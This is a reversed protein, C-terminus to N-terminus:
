KKALPTYKYNSKYMLYERRDKEVRNPLWMDSLKNYERMEDVTLGSAASDVPEKKFPGSSPKLSTSPAISSLPVAVQDKNYLGTTNLAQGRFSCASM